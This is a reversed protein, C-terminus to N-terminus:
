PSLSDLDAVPLAGEAALKRALKLELMVYMQWEGATDLAVLRQTRGRSKLENNFCEVIDALTHAELQTKQGDDRELELALVTEGGASREKASLQRFIPRADRLTAAVEAVADDTDNWFEDAHWLFGDKAGKEVTEYYFTLIGLLGAEELQEESGDWCDARLDDLAKDDLGRVVGEAVLRRIADRPNMYIMTNSPDASM